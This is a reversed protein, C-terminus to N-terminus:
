GKKHRSGCVNRFGDPHRSGGGNVGCPPPMGNGQGPQEDYRRQCSIQGGQPAAVDPIIVFVDGIIWHQRIGVTQMFDPKGGVGLRLIKRQNIGREPQLMLEPSQVRQAIMEHVNQQVAEVGGQHPHDQLSQWHRSGPQRGGEEGQM